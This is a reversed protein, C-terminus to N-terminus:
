LWDFWGGSDKAAPKAAPKPPDIRPSLSGNLVRDTFSQDAAAASNRADAQLEARIAPDSSAAALILAELARSASANAGTLRGALLGLGRRRALIREGTRNAHLLRGAGDLIFLGKTSHDLAAM